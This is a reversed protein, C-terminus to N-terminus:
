QEGALYVAFWVRNRTTCYLLIDSNGALKVTSIPVDMARLLLFLGSGFLGAFGTGSSWGAICRSDFKKIFSIMVGEGLAQCVGSLLSGVLCIYFAYKKSPSFASFVAIDVLYKGYSLCAITNLCIMVIIRKRHSVKLFCISNLILMGGTPLILM